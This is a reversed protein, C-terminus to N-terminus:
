VILESTRALEVLEAVISDVPADPVWGIAQRLRDLCPLRRPPDIFGHPFVDAFPMRQIPSRSGALRRVLEALEGVTTEVASGVNFVRGVCDPTTALDVLARAVERVHAFCRTQEGDGYVTIPKGALAQHVFRPLVMGHEGSQRPGVTNFLRAVVAPLGEQAGHGFALWESMAKACAYGGRRGETVGPRVPDCERFPVPGDGYVESSSTFLVPVGRASAAALLATTCDLNRRIVALPADALLRVGVVGALHFVMDADTCAEGAAGAAAVSEIRVSLQPHSECAALNALSGTSLDDVVRVSYGRRLLEAVLHSGVFGAGGTVVVRAGPESRLLPPAHDPKDM